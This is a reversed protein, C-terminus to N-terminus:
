YAVYYSTRDICSLTSYKEVQSTKLTLTDEVGGGDKVTLAIYRILIKWFPKEEAVENRGQSDSTELLQYSCTCKM